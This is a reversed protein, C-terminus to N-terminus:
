CAFTRAAGVVPVPILARQRGTRRHIKLLKTGCTSPQNADFKACEPRLNRSGSLSTNQETSGGGNRGPTQMQNPSRLGLWPSPWSGRRRGLNGCPSVESNRVGSCGQPGGGAAAKRPSLGVRSGQFCPRRSQVGTSQGQFPVHALAGPPMPISPNEPPEKSVQEFFRTMEAISPISSRRCRAASGRERAPYIISSM